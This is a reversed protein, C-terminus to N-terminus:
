RNGAAKEAFGGKQRQYHIWMEKKLDQVKISDHRQLQQELNMINQQVQAIRGPLMVDITKVNSSQKPPDMRPSGKVRRKRKRYTVFEGMPDSQDNPDDVELGSKSEHRLSVEEFTHREDAGSSVEENEVSNESMGSNTKQCRDRKDEPGEQASCLSEVLAAKRACEPKEM